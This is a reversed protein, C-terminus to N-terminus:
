GKPTWALSWPLAQEGALAPRLVRGVVSSGSSGVSRCSALAGLIKWSTSGVWADIWRQILLPFSLHKTWLHAALTRSQAPGHPPLVAMIAQIPPCSLHSLIGPPLCAQPSRWSALPCRSRPQVAAEVVRGARPPSNTAGMGAGVMCDLSLGPSDPSTLCGARGGPCGQALAQLGCELVVQGVERSWGACSTGEKRISEGQPPILQETTDEGDMSHLWDPEETWQTEWALINLSAM